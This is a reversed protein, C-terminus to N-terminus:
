GNCGLYFVMIDVAIDRKSMVYRDVSSEAQEEELHEFYRGREMHHLEALGPSVCELEVLHLAHDEVHMREVERKQWKIRM